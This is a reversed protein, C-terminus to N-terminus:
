LGSRALRPRGLRLAASDAQLEGQGPSRRVDRHPLTPITARSVPLDLLGCPHALDANSVDHGVDVRRNGEISLHEAKTHVHMGCRAEGPEGLSVQVQEEVPGARAARSLRHGVALRGSGASPVPDVEDDIIDLGLLAGDRAERLLVVYRALTEPQDDLSWAPWDISAPM